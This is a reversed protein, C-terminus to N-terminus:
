GILSRPNTGSPVNVGRGELAKKLGKVNRGLRIDTVYREKIKDTTMGALQRRSYGDM